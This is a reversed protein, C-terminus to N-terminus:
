LDADLSRTLHTQAGLYLSHENRQAAFQQAWAFISSYGVYIFNGGQWAFNKQAGITLTHATYLDRGARSDTDWEFNYRGFLTIDWLSDLNHFVAASANLSNFNLATLSHYRFLSERVVAEFGVSDWLKSEYRAGFDGFFYGDGQKNARSLTANTTFFEAASGFLQWPRIPEGQPIIFQAGLDSDGPTAPAPQSRDDLDSSCM